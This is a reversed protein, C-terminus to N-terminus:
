LLRGRGARRPYEAPDEPLEPVAVQPLERRVQAREYPNDDVFVLADLGIRLTEAIHRLNHAKDQWNVAFCAIDSRRLLMEPHSDFVELANREENKSSVALIM